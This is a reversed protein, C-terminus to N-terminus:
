QMIIDIRWGMMAMRDVKARRGSVPMAASFDGTSQTSGRM